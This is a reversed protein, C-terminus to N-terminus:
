IRQIRLNTVQTGATSMPLGAPSPSRASVSGTGTLRPKDLSLPPAPPPSMGNPARPSPAACAQYRAWRRAVTDKGALPLVAGGMRRRSDRLQLASVHSTNDGTSPHGPGSHRGLRRAVVQQVPHKPKPQGPPAFRFAPKAARASRRRGPYSGHTGSTEPPWNAIGFGGMTLQGTVAGIRYVQRPAKEEYCTGGFGVPGLLSPVGSIM